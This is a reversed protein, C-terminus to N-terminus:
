DCRVTFYHRIFISQCTHRHQFYTVMQIALVVLNRMTLKVANDALHVSLLEMALYEYYQSRGWAYALPISPHGASVETM